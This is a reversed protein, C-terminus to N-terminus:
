RVDNKFRHIKIIIYYVQSKYIYININHYIDHHKDVDTKKQKNRSNLAPLLIVLRIGTSDIIKRVDFVAAFHQILSNRSDLSAPTFTVKAALHQFANGLVWLIWPSTYKGVNPQNKHYIYTFIGYM